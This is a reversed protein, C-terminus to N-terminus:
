GAVSSDATRLPMAAARNSYIRAPQMETRSERLRDRSPQAM